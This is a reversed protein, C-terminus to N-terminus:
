CEATSKLRGLYETYRWAMAQFPRVKQLFVQEFKLIIVMQQLTLNVHKFAHLMPGHTLQVLKDLYASTQCYILM